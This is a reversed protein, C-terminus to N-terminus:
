TSLRNKLVIQLGLSEILEEAERESISSDNMKILIQANKQDAKIRHDLAEDDEHYTMLKDGQLGELQTFIM